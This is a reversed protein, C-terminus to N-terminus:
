AEYGGTVEKISKELEEESILRGVSTVRDNIVVTPPSMMSYRDVEESLADFEM